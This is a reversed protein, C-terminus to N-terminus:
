QLRRDALLALDERWGRDPFIYVRKGALSDPWRERTSVGVSGLCLPERIKLWRSDAPLRRRDPEMRFLMPVAEDIPLDGIWDDYSCWSALATISLPLDRPMQSRLDKLLSKYFARQSHAADFDIQLAAIGPQRASHLLLQLAGERQPTTLPPGSPAEIRVVAIRAATAPYALPQRRPLSAVKSSLVITQDLFAIATNRDVARLDEPREWAWLTTRPLISMRPSPGQYPQPLGVPHLVVFILILASVIIIVSTLRSQLSRM